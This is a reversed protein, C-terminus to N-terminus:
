LEHKGQETTQLARAVWARAMSASSFILTLSADLLPREDFVHSQELKEDHSSHLYTNPKAQSPSATSAVGMPLCAQKDISPSIRMCKHINKYTLHPRTSSERKAVQFLTPGVEIQGGCGNSVHVGGSGSRLAVRVRAVCGGALTDLGFAAGNGFVVRLIISGHRNKGGTDDGLVASADPACTLWPMAYGRSLMESVDCDASPAIWFVNCIHSLRLNSNSQKFVACRLSELATCRTRWCRITGYYSM